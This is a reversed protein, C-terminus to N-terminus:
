LTGTQKKNRQFKMTMSNFDYKLVGEKRLEKCADSLKSKDAKAGTEKKYIKGLDQLNFGDKLVSRHNGIFKKIQEKETM